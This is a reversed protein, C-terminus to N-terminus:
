WLTRRHWQQWEFIWSDASCHGHMSHSKMWSVLPPVEVVKRSVACSHFEQLGGFYGVCGKEFLWGKPRYAPYCGSWSSIEQHSAPRPPEVALPTQSTRGGSSGVPQHVVGLAMSSRDSTLLAEEFTQHPVVVSSSPCTPSLCLCPSQGLSAPIHQKWAMSDPVQSVYLPLKVNAQTALLDMIPCDFVKCVANFVRPLLSWETPLVQNPRSLQDALVHKKGLFYRASLIGSHVERWLIIEQALQVIGKFHHGRKKLLCSSYYLWEHSHGGRGSSWFPM